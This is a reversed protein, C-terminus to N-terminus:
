RRNPEGHPDTAAVPGAEEAPDGEDPVARLLGRLVIATEESTWTTLHVHWTPDAALEAQLAPWLRSFSAGPGLGGEGAGFLPMTMSRLTPDGAARQTRALEFCRHVAKLVGQSSVDYGRQGRHPSAVAAHYIRRVGQEALRGPSTVVIVGPEVPIGPTANAAVWDRLEEAVVDRVVAGAQDRLAAAHRLQGSLTTSFSRDPELFTNESSVIIDVDRLEEVAGMLVSIRALASARGDAVPVRFPGYRGHAYQDPSESGARMVLRLSREIEARATLAPRVRAPAPLPSGARDTPPVSTAGPVPADRGPAPVISPPPDSSGLCLHLIEEAVREVLLREHSKRFTEVSLGYIGAARERLDTTRRGITGQVLGFLYQAARGPEEDGLAQVARRLLQEVAPPDPDPSATLGAVRAAAHLAPVDLARLRILGKERLLRLDRALHAHLPPQLAHDSM